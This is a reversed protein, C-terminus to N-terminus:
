AGAEAAAKAKRTATPAADAAVRYARYPTGEANTRMGIWRVAVQAGPEAAGLEDKLVTGLLWLSWEVGDRDRVTLVVEVADRRTTAERRATIEGVLPNPHADVVDPRWAEPYDANVREELARYNSKMDFEGLPEATAPPKTPLGAVADKITHNIRASRCPPGRARACGFGRLLAPRRPVIQTCDTRKHPGHETRLPRPGRSRTM